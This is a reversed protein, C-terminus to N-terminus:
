RNFVGFALCCTLSDVVVQLYSLASDSSSPFKKTQERAERSTLHQTLIQVASAFIPRKLRGVLSIRVGIRLVVGHDADSAARGNNVGDFPDGFEHM